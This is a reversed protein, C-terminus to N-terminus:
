DQHKFNPKIPNTQAQIPNSNPKNQSQLTASLNFNAKFQTQNPKNQPRGRPPLNRYDMTLVSNLNMRAIQFNPKNQMILNNKISGDVSLSRRAPGGETFLLASHKDTPQQTLSTDSFLEESFLLPQTM